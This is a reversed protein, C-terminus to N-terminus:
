ANRHWATAADIRFQRASCRITVQYEITDPAEPKELVQIVRVRLIRRADLYAGMNRSRM